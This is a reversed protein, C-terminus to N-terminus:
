FHFCLLEFGPPGTVREKSFGCPVSGPLVGDGPPQVRSRGWGWGGSVRGPVAGHGLGEALDDELDFVVGSGDCSEGNVRQIPPRHKERSRCLGVTWRESQGITQLM